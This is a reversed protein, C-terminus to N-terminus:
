GGCSVCKHHNPVGLKELLAITDPFPQLRQVPGNAEDVATMGAKTEVMVDAGKSILLDIMENDGRFAANHLPTYGRYDATNVDAGLAEVLFKVAPLFGGPAIVQFNGDYGAGSAMQLPTVGDIVTKAALRPPTTTAPPM